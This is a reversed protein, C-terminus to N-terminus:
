DPALSDADPARRTTPPKQKRPLIPKFVRNKRATGSHHKLPGAAFLLRAGEVYAVGVEGQLCEVLAAGLEPKLVETGKM